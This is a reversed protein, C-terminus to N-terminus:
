VTLSWLGLAWARDAGRGAGCLQISRMRVPQTAPLPGSLACEVSVLNREKSSNLPEFFFVGRTQAPFSTFIVSVLFRPAAPHSREAESAM